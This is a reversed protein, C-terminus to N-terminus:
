NAYGIVKGNQLVETGKGAVFKGTTTGPPLVSNAAPAARPAPAGGGSTAAKSTVRTDKAYALAAKAADGGNEDMYKKILKKNEPSKYPESVIAEFHKVGNNIEKSEVDEASTTLVGPGKEQLQSSTINSTVNSRSTIDSQSAIEKANKAKVFQFTAMSEIRADYQEPTEGKKPLVTNRLDKAITAVSEIDFNRTAAKAPANLKVAKAAVEGLAKNKAIHATEMAQKDRRAEATLQRAEGVMGINTKYQADELNNKMSMLARKEARDAQLAKGYMGAFAGAGGGLGRIANGGQLVAPIAAIAALGKQQGLDALQQTELGAVRDAQAKYPNPGAMDQVEQYYAKTNARREAETMPASPQYDTINKYAQGLRQNWVARQDADGTGGEDDDDNQKDLIQQL